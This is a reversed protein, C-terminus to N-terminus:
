GVKGIGAGMEELAKPPNFIVSAIFAQRATAANRFLGVTRAVEPSRGKVGQVRTTEVPTGPVRQIRQAAQDDLQSARQYAMQSESLNALDRTAVRTVGPVPLPQVAAEPERMMAPRAVGRGPQPPIPNPRTATPPIPRQMTGGGPRQVPPAAPRQMVPPAPPVNSRPRPPSLPPPAAPSTNGGEDFIKRLEDAWDFSKPQPAPGNSPPAETKRQEDSEQARKKKLYNSVATFIALGLIIILKEM